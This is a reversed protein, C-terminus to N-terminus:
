EGDGNILSLVIIYTGEDTNPGKILIPNAPKPFLSFAGAVKKGRFWLELWVKRQGKFVGLNRVIFIMDEGLDKTATEDFQLKVHESKKLDYNLYGFDKKLTDVLKALEPDAEQPQKNTGYILRIAMEMPPRADPPADAGFVSGAQLLLGLLCFRRMFTTMERM